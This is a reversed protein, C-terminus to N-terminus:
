DITEYTQGVLLESVVEGTAKTLKRLFQSGFVEGPKTRRKWVLDYRFANTEKVTQRDVADSTLNYAPPPVLMQRLLEPTRAVDQLKWKAGDQEATLEAAGITELLLFRGETTQEVRPYGAVSGQDKLQFKASLKPEAIQKVDYVEVRDWSIAILHNEFHGYADIGRKIETKLRGEIRLAGEDRLGVFNLWASGDSGCKYFVLASNFVYLSRDCDAHCAQPSFACLLSAALLAICTLNPSSV